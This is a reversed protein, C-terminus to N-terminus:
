PTWSGLPKKEQALPHANITPKVLLLPSKMPYKPRFPPLQSQLRRTANKFNGFLYPALQPSCDSIDLIFLYWPKCLRVHARIHWQHKNHAHPQQTIVHFTLNWIFRRHLMWSPQITYIGEAGVCPKSWVFGTTWWWKGMLTAYFTQKPAQPHWKDGLTKEMRPCLWIWPNIMVEASKLSSFNFAVLMVPQHNPVNTIKVYIPVFLWGLQRVGDNKLPTPEVVLCIFMATFEWTQLAATRTTLQQILGCVILIWLIRYTWVVMMLGMHTYIYIYAHIYIYVGNYIYIYVM